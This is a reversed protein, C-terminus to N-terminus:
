FNILQITQSLKMESKMKENDTIPCIKLSLQQQKPEQHSQQRRATIGKEAKEM